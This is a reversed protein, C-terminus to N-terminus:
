FCRLTDSLRDTALNAAMRYLYGLPEAVPGSARDLRLWLEQLVDDAEDASGLRAVLLRRFMPREALFLARLGGASM